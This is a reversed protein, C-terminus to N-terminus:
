PRDEARELLRRLEEIEHPKLKGEQLFWAILPSASGQFVRDLFSRTAARVCKSRAVAPSYLYRKGDAKYTLAGKRLLRTLLTKVTRDSWRRRSRVREIVQQAALPHEDWLVRMVEWEARAIAPTRAM